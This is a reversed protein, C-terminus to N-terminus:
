NKFLSAYVYFGIMTKADVVVGRKIMRSLQGFSVIEHHLYEDEEPKSGVRNLNRALYIHMLESSIGPAPYFMAIKKWRSASFGTEEIIERKACTLPSENKELTGAPFEWIIRGVASRFQRILVFQDKSLLPVIVSAGPHRIVEHKFERGTPAKMRVATLDFLHARYILRSSIKRFSSKKNKM